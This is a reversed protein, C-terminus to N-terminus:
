VTAQQADDYGSLFRKADETDKPTCMAWHDAGKGNADCGQCRLTLSRLLTMNGRRIGPLRAKDLVARHDCQKCRVGLLEGRTWVTHLSDTMRAIYRSPGLRCDM